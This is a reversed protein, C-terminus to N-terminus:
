IVVLGQLMVLTLHNHGINTSPLAIISTSIHSKFVIVRANAIHRTDRFVLSRANIFAPVAKRLPPPECILERDLQPLGSCIGICGVIACLAPEPEVHLIESKKM